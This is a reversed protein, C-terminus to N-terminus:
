GLALGQLWQQTIADVASTQEKESYESAYTIKFHMLALILTRAAVSSNFKKSKPQEHELLKSFVEIIKDIPGYATKRWKADIFYAQTLLRASSQPLSFYWRRVAATALSAFDQKPPKDFIMYLFHAPDLARNVVEEVAKQFLLEKSKFIRYISGETVKAKKALDRTTVGFYGFDAFLEIANQLIRSEIRSSM